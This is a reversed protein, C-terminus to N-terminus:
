RAQKSILDSPGAWLAYDKAYKWGGSEIHADIMPMNEKIMRTTEDWTKIGSVADLVRVNQLGVCTAYKLADEISLGRLFASLFGAISSDGSGTASGFNDVVFAPAWLERNSWNDFDKPKAEGMKAFGEKSGTKVYFGRHGSKLATMKAGMALIEDATKSYEQPTIYNILEANNHKAKRALFEEPWLMYFTEEISPLHIDIYPLIRQLIKRWPAKGSPSSPDPLTMDCSTTAGSDKATKFIKELERGEDAFMRGMLPPYGFHFHRCQQILKPNLNESGFYNNTGPNHLFIRDINPPAVVITYSSSQGSMVGIGEANGSAKLIDVTLKGLTDDGACACFCVKSGLTKMNLGTNSVPGGTSIKADGVNVLKGPRMIDSINRLGTDPFRPIIDICLHGAIM